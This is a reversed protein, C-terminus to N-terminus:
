RGGPVERMALSDRLRDNCSMKVALELFTARETATLVGFLEEQRLFSVARIEGLLRTGAETITLLKERADEASVRQRILERHELLAVARSITNQPRPFLARIEKAKIGPYADIALLSSWAQVPLDFRAEMYRNCVLNNCLVVYSVALLDKLDEAFLPDLRRETTM